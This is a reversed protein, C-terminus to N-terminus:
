LLKGLTAIVAAQGVLLGVTWRTQELRADAIRASLGSELAAIRGTLGTELGALRGALDTRLEAFRVDLHSRTVITEGLSERLTEALADATAGAQAPPFGAAELRRALKLTDFAGASM